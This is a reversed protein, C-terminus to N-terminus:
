PSGQLYRDSLNQQHPIGQDMTILADFGRQSLEDLEGNEKGGWSCERVTVVEHEEGFFRKLRRDLNEDLL